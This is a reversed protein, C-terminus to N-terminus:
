MSFVFIFSHKFFLWIWYTVMIPILIVLGWLIGVLIYVLALVSLQSRSIKGMENIEKIAKDAYACPDDNKDKM